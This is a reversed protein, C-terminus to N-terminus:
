FITECHKQFFIIWAPPYINLKRNISPDLTHVFPKCDFIAMRSQWVQDELDIEDCINPHNTCIVLPAPNTMQAEAYKKNAAFSQGACINKFNELFM